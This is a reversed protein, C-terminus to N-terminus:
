AVFYTREKRANGGGSFGGINYLIASNTDCPMSLAACPRVVSFAMSCSLSESHTRKQMVPGRATEGDHRLFDPSTVFSWAFAPWKSGAVGTIVDFNSGSSSTTFRSQCRM